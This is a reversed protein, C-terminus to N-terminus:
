KLNCRMFFRTPIRMLFFFYVPLPKTLRQTTQLNQSPRTMSQSLGTTMLAIWEPYALDTRQLDVGSTPLDTLLSTVLSSSQEPVPEHSIRQVRLLKGESAASPPCGSSQGGEVM